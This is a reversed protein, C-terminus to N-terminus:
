RTQTTPPDKQPSPDVPQQVTCDVEVEDGVRIVGLVSPPKIRFEVPFPRSRVAGEFDNLTSTGSFRIDARARIQRAPSPSAAVLALLAAAAM